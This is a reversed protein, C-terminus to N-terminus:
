LSNPRPRRRRPRRRRRDVDLHTVLRIRRPSVQRGARGAGQARRPSARARRRRGARGHQDRRTAPDVGLRKALRRAHEHDDALRDLHHRLAYRGAAALIGAQRMGGGLRKRCCGRPRSGSRPARGGALRGARGAGQVPLGVRHRVAAGYTALPVGDAVHAHWIRAGDCHLAVGATARGDRLQQLTDLPHGGAPGTTPRSSRSRGHRDGALLGGAADARGALGPRLRGGAPPWTRTSVGCIAAAAGIEYTVVHADADCLLEKGRSASWSCPSRTPWRGPRCSCRRRTGSCRRSGSRSRTSPRTRATSTTASRRRPWPARM